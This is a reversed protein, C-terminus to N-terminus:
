ANAKLIKEETHQREEWEINRSILVDKYKERITGLDSVFVDYGQKQGLIASGVGSEGAGLIVLKKKL